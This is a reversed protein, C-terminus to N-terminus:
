FALIANDFSETKLFIFFSFHTLSCKTIKRLKGQALLENVTNSQKHWKKKNNKNKNPKHDPIQTSTSTSLIPIKGGGGRGKKKRVLLDKNLM